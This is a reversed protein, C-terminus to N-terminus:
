RSLPGSLHRQNQPHSVFCLEIYSTSSPMLKGLRSSSPIPGHFLLLSPSTSSVKISELAEDLKVQNRAIITVHAGRSVLIKSLELGLGSSGGPTRLLCLFPPSHLSSPHPLLIM